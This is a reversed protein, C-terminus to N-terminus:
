HKTAVFYYTSWQTTDSITWKYTNQMKGINALSVQGTSSIDSGTLYNGNSVISMRAGLVSYEDSNITVKSYLYSGSRTCPWIPDTSKLPDKLPKGGMLTKLYEFQSEPITGDNWREFFVEDACFGSLAGTFNSPMTEHDKYYLDVTRWYHQLDWFRAVDRSRNIYPGGMYFASAFLIGLM